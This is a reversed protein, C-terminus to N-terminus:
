IKTVRDWFEVWIQCLKVYCLTKITFMKPLKQGQNSQNISRQQTSHHFPCPNLNLDYSKSRLKLIVKLLNNLRIEEDTLLCNYLNLKVSLLTRNGAVWYIVCKSEEGRQFRTYLSKILELDKLDVTDPVEKGKLQM